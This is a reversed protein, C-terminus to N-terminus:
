KKQHLRTNPLINQHGDSFVDVDARKGDMQLTSNLMELSKKGKGRAFLFIALAEGDEDFAGIGEIRRVALVDADVVDVTIAGARLSFFFAFLFSRYAVFNM